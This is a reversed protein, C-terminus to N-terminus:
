VSSKQLYQALCRQKIELQNKDTVFSLLVNFSLSMDETIEKKKLVYEKLIEM